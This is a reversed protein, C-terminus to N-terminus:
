KRANTWRGDGISAGALHVVADAGEAAQADFENTSPDWRVDRPIPALTENQISKEVAVDVPTAALQETQEEVPTEVQDEVPEEVIEEIPADLIEEAHEEVLPADISSADVPPPEVLSTELPPEEVPPAEVIKVRSKHRLLRSVTHGNETLLRTIATGVFGSSGSILVRM